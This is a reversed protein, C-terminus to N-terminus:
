FARGIGIIWRFDLYNETSPTRNNVLFPFDVRLTLPKVKELPGWRKITLAFGLGADVKINSLFFKNESNRYGITGADGFFYSDIHLWERFIKPKMTILNDFELEGSFAAGSNGKYVEYTAGDENNIEPVVYGAYGRVNLGGGYQFHNIELEYSLWDAPIFAKSRTFKNEMMEEPSGGALYLASEPAPNGSGIRGTVRTNFELKRLKNKNVITMTLDAYEYDSFLSASRLVLDIAGNGKLYKYTHQFGLTTTNNWSHANWLEPYLLYQLDVEKTRYLSKVGISILNAQNAQLLFKAGGAVLGDLYRAFFDVSSNKLLRHTNSSYSFNFSIPSTLNLASDELNYDPIGNKFITTNYWASLSFKNKIQFYNGELHLGAKIGDVANYWIDPRWHLQYNKWDPISSIESDFHLTAKWKKRNDPMYVDALRKSPDIIVDKIGSPIKVEASHFNHLKDWGYWKPLITADTQKKFWTNPIYFNYEQNDKAVVRFDLPMQMRGKRKFTINYVDGDGHKVSKVAYDITKTSEMWEDFFWNLDVHTYQIISSRFDDFYPHCFKWQNFYNKMASQFLSDGLVYQLNWLMTATKYYVHRYGGGHGLAGYFADSHQNISEDIGKAAESLYGVYVEEDMVLSPQNFHNHYKDTVPTEPITDGIIHRLAYSEIFQTFGEDLAARYTENNGVQGFFWMHGVEHALLDYYGPTFGGDLTLMPYEMGDRADAVIIKPWSYMGFDRSYVEICRATFLAADQWGAAHQEQAFSQCSIKRYQNLYSDWVTATAIGIRYAPDATWAFDHVNEAYFHWTKKDTSDYPIIVSPKSEWPKQAFNIINLKAQLETPLVESENLLTGTAGVIYNSAFTLHVDFTGFDGYFEKGLHQETDWGFKSDYVCIRPYWHVGDYHTFGNTDFKKMRRRQSGTDFYTKFKISFVISDGPLLPKPLYAKLISFDLETKLETNGIRLSEVNEGLGKAEYKGFTQKNNNNLNLNELHGGKVFAQQYLHFYVFGLTDPSNNWYTLTENGDIIDTKEDIIAQINYSVDQQWYGEYPPHNKWYFYNSKSRYDNPPANPDYIKNQSVVVGAFYLQLLIMTLIGPLIRKTM